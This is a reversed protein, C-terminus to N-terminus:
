REQGGGGHLLAMFEDLGPMEAYVRGALQDTDWPARSDAYLHVVVRPSVSTELGGLPIWVLPNTRLQNPVTAGCNSCFYSSFGSRKRFRTVGQEGQLWRFDAAAVITAFSSASSGQKRCLSCHCQYARDVSGSVEYRM